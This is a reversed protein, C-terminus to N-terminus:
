SGDKSVMHDQSDMTIPTNLCVSQTHYPLPHKTITLLIGVVLKNVYHNIEETSYERKMVDFVDLFALFFLPLQIVRAYMAIDSGISLYGALYNAMFHLAFFAALVGACIFYRGKRKSIIFGFLTVLGLLGFRVLTSISTIGIQNTFYSM